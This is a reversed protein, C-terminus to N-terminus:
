VLGMAARHKQHRGRALGKTLVDATMDNTPHYLLNISGTETNVHERVFHFQIDIHKSQAHFGPNQALAIAGQNDSYITSIEKGHQLAWLERFLTRLWLVEKVAQTIGMYEAEMSSLAVVSQKRSAWSIAGGNLLFVYGSTSRRDNSGGWDSDTLGGCIRSTGYVIGLAKTGALYRFIRKVATWHENGPNTSFSSVLGVTYAIDPRSGLMAYMLSGVASQYRQREWPTAVFGEPPKMLRIGSDVPTSVTACHDMGHDALVRGLYAEQSIKLSCRARDRLVEVGIFGKLEGLETMDFTASLANKAWSIHELTDAALVLDDVYLLIILSRQQHVYLSHDEESRIFGNKAFFENIKGYWARPSQKLGYITKILRCVLEPSNEYGVETRMGEPIEMYIEEALESHLFAKKVDM